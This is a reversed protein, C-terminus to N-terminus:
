TSAGIPTSSGILRIIWGTTSSAVSQRGVTDVKELWSDSQIAKSLGDRSGFLNGGIDVEDQRGALARLVSMAGGDRNVMVLAEM